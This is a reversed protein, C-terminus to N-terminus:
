QADTFMKECFTSTLVSLVYNTKFNWLKFLIFPKWPLSATKIKIRNKLYNVPQFM